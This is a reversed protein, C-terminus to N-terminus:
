IIKFSLDTLNITHFTVSKLHGGSADIVLQVRKVVANM